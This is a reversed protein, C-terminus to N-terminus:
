CGAASPDLTSGILPGILPVSIKIRILPVSIKIGILPVSIKILARLEEDRAASRFDGVASVAPV